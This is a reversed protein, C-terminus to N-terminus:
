NNTGSFVLGGVFDEKVQFLWETKKLEEEIRDM